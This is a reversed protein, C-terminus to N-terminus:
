PSLCYVFMNKETKKNRFFFILVALHINKGWKSIQFAMQENVCRTHFDQTLTSVPEEGNLMEPHSTPSIRFSVGRALGSGSGSGAQQQRTQLLIKIENGFLHTAFGFNCTDRHFVSVLDDPIVDRNTDTFVLFFFFFVVNIEGWFIDFRKKLFNLM